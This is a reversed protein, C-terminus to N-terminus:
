ASTRVSCWYSGLARILSPYVFLHRFPDIARLYTEGLVGNPKVLVALQGRYAAGEKVWGLHIVGHVTRNAVEAAFENDTAYLPRAPLAEFEPTPTDPLEAPLRSRLSVADADLGHQPEDWGLVEGLVRRVEFLTRVPVSPSQTPDLSTMWRLLLPFDNPGGPTPLEWVDLLRFDYTIEHIRWPRATHQAPDLKM